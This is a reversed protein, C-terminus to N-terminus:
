AAPRRRQAPVCKELCVVLDQVRKLHNLEADPIRIHYTTELQFLLGYLDTTDMGLDERFRLATLSDAPLFTHVLLYDCVQAQIQSTMCPLPLPHLLHAPDAVCRGCPQLSGRLRRLRHRPIPAADLTILGFFHAVELIIVIVDLLDVGWKQSLQSDLHLWDARVAKHKSITRQVQKIAAHTLAM